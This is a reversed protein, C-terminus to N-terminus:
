QTQRHHADIIKHQTVSIQERISQLESAALPLVAKLQSRRSSTSEPEHRWRPPNCVRKEMISYVRSTMATLIPYISVNPGSPSHLASSTAPIVMSGRKSCCPRRCRLRRATLPIPQIGSNAFNCPVSTCTTSDDDHMSGSASELSFNLALRQCLHLLSLDVATDRWVCVRCDALDCGRGVVLCGHAM